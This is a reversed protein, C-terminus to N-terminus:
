SDTWNSINLESNQNILQSIKQLEFCSNGTMNLRASESIVISMFQIQGQLHQNEHPHNCLTIILDFHDRFTYIFSLYSGESTDKLITFNGLWWLKYNDSLLQCIWSISFFWNTDQPLERFTLRSHIISRYTSKSVNTQFKQIVDSGVIFSMQITKLNQNIAENRRSNYKKIRLFLNNRLRLINAFRKKKKFVVRPFLNPASLLDWHEWGVSLVFTGWVRSRTLYKVVLFKINIDMVEAFLFFLWFKNIEFIFDKKNVFVLILILFSHFFKEQKITTEM